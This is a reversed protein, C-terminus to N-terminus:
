ANSGGGEQEYHQKSIFAVENDHDDLMVDFDEIEAILKQAGSLEKM